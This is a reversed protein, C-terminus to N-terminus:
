CLLVAQLRRGPDLSKQSGLNYQWQLMDNMSDSRYKGDGLKELDLTQNIFGVQTYSDVLLLFNLM